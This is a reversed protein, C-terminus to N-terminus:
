PTPIVAQVENSYNSEASQSDVATTVYYYTTGAAVTGDTFSTTPQVTSNVKTYPGGSQTGRYVNYGVVVSTSAIWSLDVSHAIAQTGTGTLTEVTPSDAADSIFSITGSASGAATPAFDVNFSVSQGAPVTVPFSIGSVSYGEGNWSASSVTVSSNGATLSASQSSSSSVAVSGFNLTSPNVALQGAALGSGSLLVTASENSANSTITLVGSASGSASPTFVVTLSLSQGANLTAPMSPPSSLSFGTGTVSVNTVNISTTSSAGNSLVVSSTKNSGLSISGFNVSTVSFNLAPTTGGPNSSQPGTSTGACGLFASITGLILLGVAYRRFFALTGVAHNDSCCPCDDLTRLAM